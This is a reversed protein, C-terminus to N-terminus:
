VDLATHILREFSKMKMDQAQKKEKNIANKDRKRCQLPNSGLNYTKKKKNVFIKQFDGYKSIRPYLVEIFCKLDDMPKLWIIPELSDPRENSLSFLYLFTEQSTNIYTSQLLKYFESFENPKNEFAAPVNVRPLENFDEGAMDFTECNELEVLRALHEKSPLAKEIISYESPSLSDKESELREWLELGQSFSYKYELKRIADTVAPPDLTPDFIYDRYLKLSISLASDLDCIFELPVAHDIVTLYKLASFLQDGLSDLCHSIVDVDLSLFSDRIRINNIRQCLISVISDAFVSDLNYLKIIFCSAESISLIARPYPGYFEPHDLHKIGLTYNLLSEPVFFNSTGILHEIIRLLDNLLQKREPYEIAVQDFTRGAGETPLYNSPVLEGFIARQFIAKEETPSCPIPLPRLTSIKELSAKEKLFREFVQDSEFSMAVLRLQENKIPSLHSYLFTNLTKKLALTDGCYDHKSLDNKM